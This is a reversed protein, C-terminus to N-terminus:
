EKSPITAHEDLTKDGGAQFALGRYQLVVALPDEAGAGNAAKFCCRNSSYPLIDFLDM